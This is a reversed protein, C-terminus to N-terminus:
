ENILYEDSPQSTLYKNKILSTRKIYILLQKLTLAPKVPHFLKNKQNGMFLVIPKWRMTQLTCFNLNNTIYNETSSLDEVKFGANILLTPILVEHHGVYGSKLCQDLYSLARNSLKYIPNFSRFLHEEQYESNPSNFTNWWHWHPSKSFRRIHSSIFDSNSNKSTFDFFFDWKGNFDVDNEICWYSAYQPHKLFFDLVPFHNSGPVVSDLIPIYNLDRLLDDNFTIVPLQSNPSLIQNETSHYLIFVDGYAVAAEQLKNYLRITSKSLENTIILFALKGSVKVM